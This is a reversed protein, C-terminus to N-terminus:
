KKSGLKNEEGKVLRQINSKHMIILMAALIVAYAIMFWDGFHFIPILLAFTLAGLISGLSVYKTTAMVILAVALVVLAIRWDAFFMATASVVVGKGGKFKFYLPFNHGLAVGIGSVYVALDVYENPLIFGALLKVLSMAIIAKLCDGLLVFIAIKKGYTRLANTAGANGSGHNRIDDGSVIRGILIATSISGVLYGIIVMLGILIIEM